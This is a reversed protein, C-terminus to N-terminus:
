EATAKGITVGPRLRGIQGDLTTAGHLLAMFSGPFDNRILWGDVVSRATWPLPVVEPLIVVQKLDPM